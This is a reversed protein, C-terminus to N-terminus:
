SIKTLKDNDNTVFREKLVLGKSGVVIDICLIFRNSM